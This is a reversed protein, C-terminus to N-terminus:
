NTLVKCKSNDHKMPFYSSGRKKIFIIRKCLDFIFRRVQKEQLSILQRFFPDHHTVNRYGSGNYQKTTYVVEGVFEAYIYQLKVNKEFTNIFAVTGTVQQGAVFPQAEDFQITITSAAHSAGSGM